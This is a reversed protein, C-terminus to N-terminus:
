FQDASTATPKRPFYILSLPKRASPSSEGVKLAVFAEQTCAACNVLCINGQKRGRREGVKEPWVSGAQRGGLVRSVWVAAPHVHSSPHTHQVICNEGSSRVM